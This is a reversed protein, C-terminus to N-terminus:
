FLPPTEEIQKKIIIDKQKTLNKLDEAMNSSLNSRIRCSKIKAYSSTATDLFKNKLITLNESPVEESKIDRYLLEYPLMLDTYEIETPSIAFQLDKSLLSEEQKTLKYKSFNFIVEKPNHGVNNIGKTLDLLKKSHIKQHSCLSKDNKVLFSQLCPESWVFKYM